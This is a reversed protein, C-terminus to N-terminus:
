RFCRAASLQLCAEEEEEEEYVLNQIELLTISGGIIRIRLAAASLLMMGM